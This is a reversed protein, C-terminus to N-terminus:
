NFTVRFLYKGPVGQCDKIAPTYISARAVRIAEDEFPRDWWSPAYVATGVVTGDPALTVEVSVTVEREYEAPAVAQAAQM